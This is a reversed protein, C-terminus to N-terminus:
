KMKEEEKEQQQQVGGDGIDSKLDKEQQQQVGGDRIDSKLKKLREVLVKVDQKECHCIATDGRSQREEEETDIQIKQWGRIKKAM